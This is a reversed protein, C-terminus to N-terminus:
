QKRKLKNYKSMYVFMIVLVIILLFIIIGGVIHIILFDDTTATLEKSLSNNEDNLSNIKADYEKSKKDFASFEKIIKTDVIVLDKLISVSKEYDAKNMEKGPININLYKKYLMERKSKLSDISEPFVQSIILTFAFLIFIKKM